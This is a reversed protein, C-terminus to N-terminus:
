DNKLRRFGIQSVGLKNNGGEPGRRLLALRQILKPNGM